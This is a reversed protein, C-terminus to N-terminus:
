EPIPLGRRILEDELDKIIKAVTEASFGGGGGQYRRWSKLRDSIKATEDAKLSMEQGGNLAIVSQRLEEIEAQAELAIEAAKHRADRHGKAYDSSCAAGQAQDINMIRGHYDM